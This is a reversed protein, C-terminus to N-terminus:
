AGVVVGNLGEVLGGEGQDGGDRDVEGARRDFEDTPSRRAQSYGGDTANADIGVAEAHGIQELVGGEDAGGLKGGEGGVTRRSRGFRFEYLHAPVLVGLAVPQLEFPLRRLRLSRLSEGEAAERRVRCGDGSRGSVVVRVGIRSRRLV